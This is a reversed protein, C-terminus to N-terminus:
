DLSNFYPLGRSSQVIRHPHPASFDFNRHEGAATWWSSAANSSQLMAQGASGILLRVLNPFHTVNALPYFLDDHFMQPHLGLLDRFGRAEDVIEAGVAEVGDFEHHRKLLFEAAFNGIVSGLRDQGHAVRHLEKLLVGFASQEASWQAGWPCPHRTASLAINRNGAKQQDAISARGIGRWYRVPSTLVRHERPALPALRAKAPRAPPAMLRTTTVPMPITVGSPQPTSAVHRRSIAPSLPARLTSVKSTDSRGARIAHMIGRPLPLSPVYLGLSQISGFSCRLTSSKM